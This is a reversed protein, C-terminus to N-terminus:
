LRSLSKSLRRLRSREKDKMVWNYHYLDEWMGYPANDDHTIPVIPVASLHPVIWALEHPISKPETLDAIICRSMHALIMVTESFNRSAPKDFDFLVPLYDERRLRERIADLVEKREKTFRGLILVVKKTITDIVSRIRENHILLHIFQAVELDDVTIGPEGADTILLDKQSADKLDANWVSIGYIQAGGIDSRSLKTGVLRAHKLNVGELRAGVLTADTLDAAQLITGELRTWRLDTGRLVADSLNTKKLSAWRLDAGALNATILQAGDLRAWSLRAGSLDFGNLSAGSLDSRILWSNSLDVGRLTTSRLDADSLDTDCLKAGSLNARSLNAGALNTRSVIRSDTVSLHAKGLDNEAYYHDYLSPYSGPRVWRLDANELDAGSLDAGSLDAGRLDAGRLQAGRLDAKTLKAMVLEAGNLFVERLDAGSLDVWALKAKWLGQGRLHANRLDIRAGSIRREWWCKDKWVNIGLELARLLDEDAM